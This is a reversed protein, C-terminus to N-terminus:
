RSFTVISEAKITDLVMTLVFLPRLRKVQPRYAGDGSLLDGIQPERNERASVDPLPGALDM